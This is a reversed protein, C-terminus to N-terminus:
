NSRPYRIYNCTLYVFVCHSKNVYDLYLIIKCIYNLLFICKYLDLKRVMKNIMINLHYSISFMIKLMSLTNYNNIYLLNTIIVVMYKLFVLGHNMSWISGHNWETREPQSRTLFTIKYSQNKCENNRRFSNEFIQLIKKIFIIEM